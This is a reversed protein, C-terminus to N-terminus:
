IYLKPMSSRNDRHREGDSESEHEKIKKTRKVPKSEPVSNEATKPTETSDGDHKEETPLDKFGKYLKWMMPLNKVMPGYQQIMPGFSQVTNLVQQTNNLFGTLSGPNSLTQLISGVGGTGSPAARSATQLGKFGGSQNGQKKGGLIKSLLGGGNRRGQGQGRGRGRGMGQGMLPRGGNNAQQLGMSRGGYPNMMQQQHGGFPGSGMLMQRGMQGHQPYRQRTYM